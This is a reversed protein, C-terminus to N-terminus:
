LWKVFVFVGTTRDRKFISRTLPMQRIKNVFYTNDHFVSILNKRTIDHVPGSLTSSFYYFTRTGEGAGSGPIEYLCIKGVYDVQYCEGNCVRWDVGNKRYGWIDDLFFKEETTDKKAVLYNRRNDILKYRKQRDFGSTLRHLLYDSDKLYIGNDQLRSISKQGNAAFCILIGLIAISNKM